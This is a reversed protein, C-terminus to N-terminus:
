IIEQTFSFSPSFRFPEAPSIKVQVFSVLGSQDHVLRHDLVSFVPKDIGQPAVSTQGNPVYFNQGCSAWLRVWLFGPSIGLGVLYLTLVSL